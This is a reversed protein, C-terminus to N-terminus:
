QFDNLAKLVEAASGNSLLQNLEPNQKLVDAIKELKKVAREDVIFQEAHLKAAEELREDVLAQFKEMTKKALGYLEVDPVQSKKVTVSRITMEPYSDQIKLEEIIQNGDYKFIIKGSSSEVIYLSMDLAIEESQKDIYENLQQQDSVKGEKVLSLLQSPTVELVIDYEFYYTFDPNGKILSSYIEASPLSKEITKSVCFSEKSFQIVETNGPILCRWNWSFEGNRIIKEHVGSTKSVLVGYKGPDVKLSVTGAIFIYLAVASVLVTIVSAKIVGKKM